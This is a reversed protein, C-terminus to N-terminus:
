EFGSRGGFPFSSDSDNADKSGHAKGGTAVESAAGYQDEDDVSEDSQDDDRELARSATRRSGRARGGTAVM